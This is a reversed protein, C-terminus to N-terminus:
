PFQAPLCFVFAVFADTRNTMAAHGNTIAAHRSTSAAHKNNIRNQTNNRCTQQQDLKPHQKSM